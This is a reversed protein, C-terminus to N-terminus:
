GERRYIKKMADMLGSYEKQRGGMGDSQMRRRVVDGPFTVTQAVLVAGAGAVLREPVTAQAKNGKINRQLLEHTGMQLAVYPVGSLMTPLYGNYLARVGETRVTTSLCDIIGKYKVPSTSAGSVSLRTFIVEGPYTITIQGMGALSGSLFLEAGSM